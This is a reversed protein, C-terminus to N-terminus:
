MGTERMPDDNDYDWLEFSLWYIVKNSKSFWPFPKVTVFLWNSSYYSLTSPLNSMFVNREDKLCLDFYSSLREVAEDALLLATHDHLSNGVEMSGVFLPVLMAIDHIFIRSSIAAYGILLWLVSCANSGNRGNIKSQCLHPPFLYQRSSTEIGVVHFDTTLLKWQNVRQWNVHYWPCYNGWHISKSRKNGRRRSRWRYCRRSPWISTVNTTVTFRLFCENGEDCTLNGWEFQRFFLNCISYSNSM